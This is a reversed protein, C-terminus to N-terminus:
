KVSRALPPRAVAIMAPKIIRQGVAGLDDLEDM